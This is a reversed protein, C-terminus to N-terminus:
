RGTQNLLAHTANTLQTILNVLPQILTQLQSLITALSNTSDHTTQSHFSSSTFQPSNNVVNSYSLKSNLGNINVHNQSQHNSKSTSPRQSSPLEPYSSTSPTPVNAQMNRAGQNNRSIPSRRVQQLQKHVQCGRYNAPHKGGCNACTPHAEKSKTCVSSDHEGGCRVCRATYNCYSRTHGYQQCRLCQVIARKKRPEEVKIISHCLTKIDYITDNIDSQELDVFYLPLPLKTNSLVNVISRVKFGKQEIENKIDTTPISPHLGRLVVRYSRDEKLQFTHYQAGNVKLINIFKRYVDSSEPRITIGRTTTVCSFSNEGGISKLLTCLTNFEKVTSKLYIPPPKPVKVETQDLGSDCMDTNSLVEFKNSTELPENNIVTRPDGAKKKLSPGQIQDCNIRKNPEFINAMTINVDAINNPQM